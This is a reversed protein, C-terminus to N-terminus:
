DKHSKGLVMVKKGGERNNEIKRHCKDKSQSTLLYASSELASSFRL